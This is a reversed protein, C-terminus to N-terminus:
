AAAEARPLVITFQTYSGAETSVELAGGHQKVVIDHSLSLGLGTGDGAPKTTFFPNFIKAKVQDPIGTGNDRIAIEVSHGLDRTSATVTPEYSGSGEGQKRKATAYFGNSILNLLVRTMEQAYLDAVGAKDDLSKSITVNFGPKEARAGHYALNLAEEVMANVNVSTREGSGERSHLLMNKVISDARKGHSVVKDLNAGITGILEDAEDREGNELPARKLTEGLEDVLERTLASYNNVFNLPNKIEHAIGATLQGLSALKESQVLRDQAKRLDDLSAALEKTRAQVEDFLRVNELAIVAQDAFTQVIEVQRDSFHGPEERTLVLAGEIGAKGLLPVGLFARSVNGFAATPVAYEEDEFRDRIHEVKGSLLVRGVMTGRGPTAPHKALYEHLAPTAGVGASGTYRFVEGDRVCISGSFAGCLEVASSILTDFVAQLDFASRSIVKLVESTATQLQLAETLDDTKIKVENFLRVNEIAIAAQDAFTQVLKIHSPSFPGPDPRALSFLGIVVNERFMPMVVGSRVGALKVAKKFRYSPDNWMDEFHGFDGPHVPGRRHLADILPIPVQFNLEEIERNHGLALKLRFVDGDRLHLLGTPARCLEMASQLIETTVTDLDFASRSIVKLVDATATQQQLAETLDRTRAQLEDFLRTNEIAIVAQDAFTQVLDIQRQPFLGPQAGTVVFVGEVREGRLLPVALISRTNNLQQVPLAYDPDELVDALMEVCGSLIARGAGTGPGPVPPHQVMYKVFEPTMGDSFARYCYADGERLAIVGGTAGSLDVASSVLTDLVAQLDFASRSIVKLAESTATQIQLAESLDRTKAQVAEFMRANQIAIVAQDAFTQLLAMEKETFAGRSRAVGVAGIGKDEWVMPAFAVSHYGVIKGVKRLVPPTDPNNLVDSYNAVRRERIARGAPTIEWPAPFTAMITERAKGLYAAVQLLGEDDILLVDLEDGDFLQKCSQLIKDFVPQADAVSKSIVGLIEASARQQELAEQTERFLRANEIAIVAQDAFTKLLAMEKESFDADAARTLHIAGIGRGEWLMPAVLVTLSGAHRAFERLTWPADPDNAVDRFVVVRAEDFARRMPTRAVPQPFLARLTEPINIDPRASLAAPAVQGSADVVFIAAGNCAVLRNCSEVIREFVPDADSVSRAIASLVEGSARQHELAEQTERFLRANEIAIVAQDAFTRLLKVDDAAFAGANKRTVSIMGIAGDNSMLPTFLMGRYGRLRALDRIVPPVGSEADTDIFQQTEGDRVLLFPPFDAIPRPFAAQLAEDASLNTPTFAVLHLADGVFRIVTTSFGGLLRNASAAIADFVPQVDSPSGAIVKLVDATATQRELAEQTENFLRANEIAILAQDRFSAGQSIEKPGFNNPRNGVLALVGICEGGRLLPLYLASNVGFVGRINREHEPLDIQSWDPLYVMERTRIARSPFNAEPDIPFRDPGLDPIPGQPTAASGIWFADADCLLVFAVDCRLTRAATEVIREFVPRADTPSQSIVRLIESTATQRELAQRTENFLRANEIAILAQDRFSVAQAIESPGFSNPRSGVLGLAGICEGERLLPLYLASNFGLRERMKREHEPLEILSWDPLHVVKKQVIARSPFNADPDIPVRTRGVDAVRGETTWAAATVFVDGECLVVVATECHLVHKATEVIREFVPRADTPSQSIVRLIESTATQRAQAETLEREREALAALLAERTPGKTSGGAPRPPPTSSPAARRNPM